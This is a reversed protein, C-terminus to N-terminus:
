RAPPPTPSRGYRPGNGEERPDGEGRGRGRVREREKEREREREREREKERAREALELLFGRWPTTSDRPLFPREETL